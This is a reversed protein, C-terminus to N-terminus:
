SISEAIIIRIRGGALVTKDYFATLRYKSQDSVKDLTTLTYEGGKLYYVEYETDLPYVEEGIQVQSRGINTIPAESLGISSILKNQDFEFGAPGKEFAYGYMNDLTFSGKEGHLLYEYTAFGSMGQTILGTFIGYEYLDGTADNLILQSIEGRDNIEYYIPAYHLSAGALREPIVSIYRSGKLDLIKVNSALKRDGLQDAEKGFVANDFSAGQQEVQSVQVMTDEYTVRILDGESLSIRTQDFDQQYENGAADVFVAYSSSTYMGEKNETMHTGTSLVVGTIRTDYEEPTLVGVVTNEKGLLLTIIDGKDIDGLTSFKMSMDNTGLEYDKGSVTISQPALQDPRVSQLSGTVKNDYAWITLLSESYYLVAYDELDSLSCAKGNLYIYADSVSFPIKSKWESNLIVPGKTDERILSLYDLEGNKMAYGLTEAYIKGEKNVANLTNYFLNICDKETMYSTKSRSINEDLGKAYYLSMQGDIRNGTFDNSQYGLLKLVGTVAEYLTIGQDPKFTGNLYGSMWGSTVATRIYPAAPHNKPVDKFLSISSGTSEWDKLSSMNVLMQAFRARSVRDKDEEKKVATEMIGLADIAQRAKDAAAYAHKGSLLVMCATTLVLVASLVARIKRM